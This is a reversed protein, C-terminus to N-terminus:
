QKQWITEPGAAGIRLNGNKYFERDFKNLMVDHRLSDRAYFHAIVNDSNYIDSELNQQVIRLTSEFQKELNQTANWRDIYLALLIGLAVMFLETVALFITSTTPNREDKKKFSSGISKVRNTLFKLLLM